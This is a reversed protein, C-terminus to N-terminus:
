HKVQMHSIFVTGLRTGRSMSTVGFGVPDLAEEATREKEGYGNSNGEAYELEEHSGNGDPTIRNRRRQNYHEAPYDDEPCSDVEQQVQSTCREIEEVPGTRKLVAREGLDTM